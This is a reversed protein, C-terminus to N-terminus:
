DLRILPVPNEEDIIDLVDEMIRKMGYIIAFLAKIRVVFNEASTPHHLWKQVESMRCIYGQPSDMIHPM